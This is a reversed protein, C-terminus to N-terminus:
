ANLLKAAGGAGARKRKIRKSALWWSFCHSKRLFVIYFFVPGALGLLELWGPQPLLYTLSDELGLGAVGM